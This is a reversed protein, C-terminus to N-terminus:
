KWGRRLKGVLHIFRKTQNHIFVFILNVSKMHPSAAHFSTSVRQWRGRISMDAMNKAQVAVDFSLEVCNGHFQDPIMVYASATYTVGMEVPLPGFYGSNSDTIGRGNRYHQMVSNNSFPEAVDTSIRPQTHQMGVNWLGTFESSNPLLNVFDNCTIGQKELARKISKLNKIAQSAAESAARYRSDSESWLTELEALRQHREKIFGASVFSAYNQQLYAPFQDDVAKFRLPKSNGVSRLALMQDQLVDENWMSRQWGDTHSYAALKSKVQETGGIFTFHWGANRVYYHDPAFANFCEMEHTRNFNYDPIKDDLYYSYAFPKKWGSDQACMNYFFQYMPMDLLFYGSNARLIDITDPRIIEDCDSIIVIDELSARDLGRKIANRQYHERGWVTQDHDGVVTSGAETSVAPMDEVVIHIIKDMFQGFQHRQERFFLPKPKGRFTVTSECIVFYDISNYLEHLRLKLIEIENYFIFCDFIKKKPIM